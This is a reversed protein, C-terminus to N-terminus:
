KPVIAVRGSGGYGSSVPVGKRVGQAEVLRVALLRVLKEVLTTAERRLDSM